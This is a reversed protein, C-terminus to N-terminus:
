FKFLKEANKKAGIPGIVATAMHEKGFLHGALSQIQKSTVAELKKLRQEPSEQKKQFLWQRGYWDAYTSSDEFALTLKGRIHDKARRLEDASIPKEATKRLEQWIVRVAEDVRKKDLGTTVQFLGTDEMAQHSAQISYCLGRRERVEIFLRSSMTGGLITGLINASPLREDGLPLGHFSMALQVQETNKDQYSLPSKLKDPIIFPVFAKDVPKSPQKIKGFTKELIKWIEPVIKGSVSICMRSPIYYADRYDVLQKPTVTRINDRPGAINWGLTSDPFLSEEILDEIHMRPNDEYMNIEELIVNRERDIEKPDYKSHFLMDHLMDAALATKAADMKIYYATVDKSTFANYDAGYRDLEKSITQSDPRRKTGKFMLHEIFHSAGNIEKSEYRSGVRVFVMITMSEAGKMPVVIARLGNSLDKSIPKM